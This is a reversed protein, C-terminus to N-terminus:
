LAGVAKLAALCIAHQATEAGWHTILGEPGVGICCSWVKSSRHKGVTVEVIQFQDVLNEVVLWADAIATSYSPVIPKFFGAFRKHCKTCAYAMCHFPGQLRDDEMYSSSVHGITHVHVNMVKEAVLVDLERGPILQEASPM